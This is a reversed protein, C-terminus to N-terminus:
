RGNASQEKTNQYLAYLMKSVETYLSYFKKYEPETFVKLDLLIQLIAVCEYISGRAMVYFRKRDSASIRGSGEAINLAISLSARKLQDRLYLDVNQSKYLRPILLANLRRIRQYVLLGEFGFGSM